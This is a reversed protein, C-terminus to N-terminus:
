GGGVDGPDMRRDVRLHIEVLRVARLLVAVQSCAHALIDMLPDGLDRLGRLLSLLFLLLPQLLSSFTAVLLPKLVHDGIATLLGVLLVQVVSEALFRVLEVLFAAFGNVLLRPIAFCERLEQQLM